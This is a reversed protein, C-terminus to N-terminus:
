QAKGGLEPVAIKGVPFLASSAAFSGNSVGFSTDAAEFSGNGAALSGSSDELPRKFRCEHRPFARPAIVFV